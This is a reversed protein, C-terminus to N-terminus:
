ALQITKQAFLFFSKVHISNGREKTTQEFILTM